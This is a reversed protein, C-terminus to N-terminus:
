TLLACFLHLNQIGSALPPPRACLRFRPFTLFINQLVNTIECLAPSEDPCIGCEVETGIASRRSGSDFVKRDASCSLFTKSDLPISGEFGMMALQPVPTVAATMSAARTSTPKGSSFLRNYSPLQVSHACLTEGESPRIRWALWYLQTYIKATNMIHRISVRRIQINIHLPM